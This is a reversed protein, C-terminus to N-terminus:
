KDKKSKSKSGSIKRVFEIVNGVESAAISVANASTLVKDKIQNLAEEFEAIKQRLESVVQNAQKLIQIIYYMGWVLFITCLLICISIVGYLVDVSTAYM